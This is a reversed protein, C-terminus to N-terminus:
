CQSYGCLLCKMCGEESILSSNGCDPCLDAGLVLQIEQSEEEVKIGVELVQGDGALERKAGREIRRETRLVKAVADALSRVRNPGM